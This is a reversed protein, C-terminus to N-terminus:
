TSIAAIATQSRMMGHDSSLEATAGLGGSGAGGSTIGSSGFSVLKRPCTTSRRPFGRLSTRMPQDLPPHMDSLSPQKAPSATSVVRSSSVVTGSSPSLTPESPDTDVQSDNDKSHSPKEGMYEGAPTPVSVEMRTVIRGIEADALNSAVIPPLTTSGVEPELTVIGGFVRTYGSPESTFPGTKMSRATISTVVGSPSAEMGPSKEAMPASPLVTISCDSPAAQIPAVSSSPRFSWTLSPEFYVSSRCVSAFALAALISVTGSIHLKSSALPLHSSSSDSILILPSAAGLLARGAALETAALDSGTRFVALILPLFFPLIFFISYSGSSSPMTEPQMDGSANMSCTALSPLFDTAASTVFSPKM